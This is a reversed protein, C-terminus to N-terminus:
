LAPLAAVDEFDFVAKDATVNEKCRITFQPVLFNRDQATYTPVRGKASYFTWKRYGVLNDDSQSGAAYRAVYLEVQVSPVVTGIKPATYKGAAFTGGGLMALAEGPLEASTMGLEVGVLNPDDEIVCLLGDGGRLEQRQGEIWQPTISAQQPTKFSETKPSVAKVLGTVPDLEKLVMLKCGYLINDM